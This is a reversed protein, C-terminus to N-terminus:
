QPPPLPGPSAAQRWEPQALLDRLAGALRVVRPQGSSLAHRLGAVTLEFPGLEGGSAAFLQLRHGSAPLGSPATSTTLRCNKALRERLAHHVSLEGPEVSRHPALARLARWYGVLRQSRGVHMGPRLQSVLVAPGLGPVQREFARRMLVKWPHRRPHVMMAAVKAHLAVIQLPVDARQLGGLEFPLSEVAACPVNRLPPVEGEVLLGRVVFRDICDVLQSLLPQPPSVFSAHFYLSSALVQKAVHLRGLYSLDFRCWDRIRLRVATLRKAFM